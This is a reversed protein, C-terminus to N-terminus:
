AHEVMLRRPPPSPVAIFRAIDAKPRLRDCGSSRHAADAKPWFRINPALQRAWRTAQGEPLDLRREPHVDRRWNRLRGIGSCCGFLVRLHRPAGCKPKSLLLGARLVFGGGRLLGHIDNRTQEGLSGSPKRTRCCRLSHASQTSLPCGHEIDTKPWFRVNAFGSTYGVRRM